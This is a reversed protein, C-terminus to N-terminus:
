KWAREIWAPLSDSNKCSICSKADIASFFSTRTSCVTRTRRLVCYQQLHRLRRLYSLSCNQVHLWSRHSSHEVSLELRVFLSSPPFVRVSAASASACLFFSQTCLSGWCFALCQQQSQSSSCPKPTFPLQTTQLCTLHAPHWALRGFYIFLSSTREYSSLTQDHSEESKCM